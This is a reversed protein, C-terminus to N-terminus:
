AKSGLIDELAATDPVVIVVSDRIIYTTGDTTTIKDGHVADQGITQDGKIYDGAIHVEPPGTTQTAEELARVLAAIKEQNTTRPTAKGREWRSVTSRSVRLMTSVFAQSWGWLERLQTLRQIM